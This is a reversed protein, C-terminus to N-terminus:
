VGHWEGCKRCEEVTMTGWSTPDPYQDIHWDHLLGPRVQCFGIRKVKKRLRRAQQTTM